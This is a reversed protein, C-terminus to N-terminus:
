DLPVGDFSAVRSDVDGPCYRVGETPHCALGFPRPGSPAGVATPAGPLLGAALAAAAAFAASACCRRAHPVRVAEGHVGRPGAAVDRPLPASRGGSGVVISRSFGVLSRLALPASRPM